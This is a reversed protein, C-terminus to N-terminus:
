RQYPVFTSQVSGDDCLDVLAYAPPFEQYAGKWWNGSVAGNCLYKIGLYEVEDQLHIHGSLCLKINAHQTFLDKLRRADLHMWAAPVRWEGSAENDGDFFACFCIIPIHSLVCVPTTAPTRRLDEALWEFQAEDLRALYGTPAPHTSDLVIFHWGARDFSYYRARLGLEEMVWQKGYLRDSGLTADASKWGWVDHNGICHVVPLSCENRLVEQWIRWQTKTRAKDAGLADMICDGGNFIIAPPDPQNQAHHLAAAMGEAANLEPQVHIDTLHALRLVRRSTANGAPAAFRGLATAGVGALAAQQLFARRSLQQPQKM